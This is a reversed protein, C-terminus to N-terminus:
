KKTDAIPKYGDTLTKLFAIIDSIDQKALKLNGLDTKNITSAVEPHAFKPNIDRENYFELVEELTNFIGSHMYPATKEINRLSPTKFRGVESPNNREFKAAGSDIPLNKQLPNKPLGINDYSYDTFLIKNTSAYPTPSSLHCLACKAKTSDNFLQMGRMEQSSLKAKGQLYFDFKSTFQNVQHSLEFAQLCEVAYFVITQSDAMLNNGFLNKLKNFYPARKIKSSVNTFSINNMEHVNTLPFLAQQNLFEAKGDWFFGGVEEWVGRVIEARRNPAFGMYAIANANRTGTQQNSGESFPTHRPDAYGSMPSHCTACSVGEPESLNKDFFILKGIIASDSLGNNNNIFEEESNYYFPESKKQCSFILAFVILSFLVIQSKM